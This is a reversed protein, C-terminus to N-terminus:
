KASSIDYWGYDGYGKISTNSINTNNLKHKDLQQQVKKSWLGIHEFVIHELGRKKAIGGVLLTSLGSGWEL